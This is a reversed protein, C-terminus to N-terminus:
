HLLLGDITTPEDVVYPGFRQEVGDPDRVVVDFKAAAGPRLM